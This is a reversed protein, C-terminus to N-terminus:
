AVVDVGRRGLQHQARRGGVHDFPQQRHAAVQDVLRRVFGALREGDVALVLRRQGAGHRVLQQGELCRQGRLAARQEPRQDFHVNARHTCAGPAAGRERDIGFQRTAQQSEVPRGDVAEVGHGTAAGRDMHQRRQVRRCQHEGADRLVQLHPARHLETQHPEGLLQSAARRHQRLLAIRKEDLEDLAAGAHRQCRQETAAGEDALRGVGVRELDARLEVVEHDVGVLGHGVHQPDGHRQDVAHLDRGLAGLLKQAIAGHGCQRHGLGQDLAFPEAEAGGMALDAARQMGAM